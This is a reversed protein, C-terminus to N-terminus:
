GTLKRGSIGASPGKLLLSGELVTRTAEAGCDRELLSTGLGIKRKREVIMSSHVACRVLM